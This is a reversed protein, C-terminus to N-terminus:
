RDRNFPVVALLEGQRDAIEYLGGIFEDRDLGLLEEASKRAEAMAASLDAVQEGDHDREFVKGNRYHLFVWM